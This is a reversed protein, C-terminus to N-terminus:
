KEFLILSHQVGQIILLTFYLEISVRFPLAILIVLTDSISLNAIFMNTINRRNLYAFITIIVLINGTFYGWLIHQSPFRYMLTKATSLQSDCEAWFGIPLLSFLADTPHQSYLPLM